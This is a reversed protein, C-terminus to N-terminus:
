RSMGVSRANETCEIHARRLAEGEVASLPPPVFEGNSCPGFKIPLGPDESHKGVDRMRISRGPRDRLALNTGSGGPYRPLPALKPFQHSRHNQAEVRTKLSLVM